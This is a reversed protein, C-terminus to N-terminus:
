DDNDICLAWGNIIAKAIKSRASFLIRQFTSQSTKMKEAAQNQDLGDYDKLKIAELEERNIKIEKLDRMQVGRPKYYHVKLKFRLRRCLKPRPM